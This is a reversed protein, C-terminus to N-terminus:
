FIRSLESVEGRASADSALLRPHMISALGEYREPAALGVARWVKSRASQSASITLEVPEELVLDSLLRLPSLSALSRTKAIDSNRGYIKIFEVVNSSYVCYTLCLRLRFLVWM